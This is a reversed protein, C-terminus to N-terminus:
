LSTAPDNRGSLLIQRMKQAYYIHSAVFAMVGFTAFLALPDWWWFADALFCVFILLFVGMNFHESRKWYRLRTQIEEESLASVPVMEAPIEHADRIRRVWNAPLGLSSVPNSPLLFKTWTKKSSM